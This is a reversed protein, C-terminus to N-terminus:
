PNRYFPQVNLPYQYQYPYSQYRNQPYTQYRNVPNYQQVTQMPNLVMQTKRQFNRYKVVYKFIKAGIRVVGGIADGVVPILSICAGSLLVMDFRLFSYVIAIIDAPAGLGPISSIIILIMDVVELFGWVMNQITYPLSPLVYKEFMWIFVGGSQVNTKNKDNKKLTAIYEDYAVNIKQAEPKNEAKDIFERIKIEDVTIDLKNDKAIKKLSETISKIKMNKDYYNIDYVSDLIKLILENDMKEIIFDDDDHVAIYKDINDINEITYLYLVDKKQVEFMDYIFKYIDHVKFNCDIRSKTLMNKVSICRAM